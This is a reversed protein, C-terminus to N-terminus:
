ASDQLGGRPQAVLREMGLLALPLVRLSGAGIYSTRILEAPM